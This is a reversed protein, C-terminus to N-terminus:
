FAGALRGLHGHILWTGVNIFILNDDTDLCVCGALDGRVGSLECVGFSVDGQENGEADVYFSFTDARLGREDLAEILESRKM